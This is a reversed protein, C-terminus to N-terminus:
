LVQQQLEYAIEEEEQRETMELTVRKVNRREEAERRERSYM